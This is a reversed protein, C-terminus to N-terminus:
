LIEWVDKLAHRGLVGLDVEIGKGGGLKVSEVPARVQTDLATTKGDIIAEAKITYIGPNAHNIGDDLLGDWTFPVQGESQAGLDISRLQAGNAGFVRVTVHTASAPVSLEGEISGDAGLVGERSPILVKKDVLNAAQLAQEENMTVSFEAFSDQLQQIGSVTSFQALQSLFEAGEQPKLPNQNELQAVMLKMFMDQGLENKKHTSAPQETLGLSRLADIDISM